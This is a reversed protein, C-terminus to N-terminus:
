VSKEGMVSWSMDNVNHIKINILGSSELLDIAEQRKYYHAISPIMQDFVISRLHSFTMLKLLNMYETRGLGLHVALWVLAAPFNSLFHVISVPLKSFIKNRFPNFYRVIWENNEYGYVWILVKGGKKVSKKMNEIALSPQELHHIVGISFAVDFQSVYGIDYASKNIIEVNNYTSLNKKACSLTREDVDILTARTAGYTLPWYSNRGNGCGVDLISKEKWQNKPINKKTWRLFQEEYIPHIKCYKEWEYGFREPSGLKIDVSM